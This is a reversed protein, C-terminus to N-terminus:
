ARKRIQWYLKKGDYEGKVTLSNSIGMLSEITSLKNEIIQVALEKTNIEEKEEDVGMTIAYINGDEYPEGTSITVIDKKAKYILAGFAETLDTFLKDKAPGVAKKMDKMKQQLAKYQAMEEPTMLTSDLGLDDSETDEVETETIEEVETIKEDTM